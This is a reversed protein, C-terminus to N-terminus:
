CTCLWDASIYIFLITCSYRMGAHLDFSLLARDQGGHQRRLILFLLITSWWLIQSKRGM